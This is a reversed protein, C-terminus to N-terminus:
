KNKELYAVLLFVIGVVMILAGWALNINIHLSKDYIERPSFIGYLVLLIGYFGLLSGLPIKLDFFHRQSGSSEM